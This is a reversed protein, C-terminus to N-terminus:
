VERVIERLVFTIVRLSPSNHNCISCEWDEESKYIWDLETGKPCQRRSQHFMPIISDIQTSYCGTCVNKQCPVCCFTGASSPFKGQCYKCVFSEITNPNNSQNSDWFGNWIKRAIQAAYIQVQNAEFFAYSEYKFENYNKFFCGACKKYNCKSSPCYYSGVNKTFPTIVTTATGIVGFQFAWNLFHEQPCKQSYFNPISRLTMKGTKFVVAQACILIANKVTSLESSGSILKKCHMCGYQRGSDM